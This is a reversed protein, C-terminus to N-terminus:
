AFADDLVKLDIYYTKPNDQEIYVRIPQNHDFSDTPDFDIAESTFVHDVQLVADHWSTIIRYVHQHRTRKERRVYYFRTDIPVGTKKLEANDRASQRLVAFLMPFGVGSFAIGLIGTITAVGWLSFYSDLQASEPEHPLYLVDVAQGRALSSGGTQAPSFEHPQGKQDLFRYEGYQHRSMPVLVVGQAPVAHMLFDVTSYCSYLACALMLAGAIAFVSVFM